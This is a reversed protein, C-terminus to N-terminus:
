AWMGWWPWCACFGTGCWGWICFLEVFALALNIGTLIVMQPAAHVQEQLITSNLILNAFLYVARLLTIGFCAGFWRNERRLARFGLLLLVMGIAPLIYDLYLFNLTISTLGLGTLVRNMARRWPTVDAVVDEPPLDPLSDKLLADFDDENMPEWKRDCM